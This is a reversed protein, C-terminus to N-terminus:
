ARSESTESKFGLRKSWYKIHGKSIDYIRDEHLLKEERKGNVINALLEQLKGISEAM